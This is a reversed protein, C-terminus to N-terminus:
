FWHASLKAELLKYPSHYKTESGKSQKLLGNYPDAEVMVFCIARSLPWVAASERPVKNNSIRASYDLGTIASHITSGPLGGGTRLLFPNTGKSLIPNHHSWIM